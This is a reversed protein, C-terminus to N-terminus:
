ASPDGDPGPIDEGGLHEIRVLTIWDEIAEVLADGPTLDRQGHSQLWRVAALFEETLAPTIPDTPLV